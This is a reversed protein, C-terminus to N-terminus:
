YLKSLIIWLFNNNLVFMLQFLIYFSWSLKENKMKNQKQM